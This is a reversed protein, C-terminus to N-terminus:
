SGYSISFRSCVLLLLLCLLLLSQLSQSIPEPASSCSQLTVDFDQLVLLLSAEKIKGEPTVPGSVRSVRGLTSCRVIDTMIRKVTARTTRCTLLRAKCVSIYNPTL